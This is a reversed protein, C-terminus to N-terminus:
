DIKCPILVLCGSTPSPPAFSLPPMLRLFLFPNSLFWTAPSKVNRHWDTSGSGVHIDPDMQKEVVSCNGYNEKFFKGFCDPFHLEYHLM